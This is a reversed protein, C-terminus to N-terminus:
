VDNEYKASEFLDHVSWSKKVRLRLEVIFTFDMSYKVVRPYFM